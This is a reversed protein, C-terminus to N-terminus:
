KTQDGHRIVILSELKEGGSMVDTENRTSFESRAKREAWWKSTEINGRRIDRALNRKAILTPYDQALQMKDSFASDVALRDYYSSRGVGAVECAAGIDSGDHFAEELKRVIEDTWVTPRGGNSKKKM